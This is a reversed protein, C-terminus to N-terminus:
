RCTESSQLDVPRRYCAKDGQYVLPITQGSLKIGIL